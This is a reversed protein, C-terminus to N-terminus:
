KPTICIVPDDVKSMCYNEKVIFNWKRQKMTAVFEGVNVADALINSQLHSM